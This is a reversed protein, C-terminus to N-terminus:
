ATFKEKTGSLWWLICFVNLEDSLHEAMETIGEPTREGKERRWAKGERIESGQGQSAAERERDM